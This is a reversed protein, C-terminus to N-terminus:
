PTSYVLGFHGSHSDVAPGNDPDNRRYGYGLGLGAHRFVRWNLAATGYESLYGPASGSRERGWTVNGGLALDVRRGLPLSAMLTGVDSIQNGGLGYAGTVSQRLEFYLTTRRWLARVGIAALPYWARTMGGLNPTKYGAGGTLTLTAYKSLGHTWVLAGGHSDLPAPATHDKTRLYAYTLQLADHRGLERSLGFDGSFSESDVLTPDEFEARSYRGGLSLSGHQGIRFDLGTNGSYNESSSRPLQTQATALVGMTGTNQYSAAGGLNFTAHPSLQRSWGFGVGADLHDADTESAYGYGAANLSLNFHSRRGQYNRILGAHVSGGYEEQSTPGQFDVNSDYEGFLGLSFQWPPLTQAAPVSDPGSSDDQRTSEPVPSQAAVQASSLFLVLLIARSDPLQTPPPAM